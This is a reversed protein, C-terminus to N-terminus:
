RAPVRALLHQGGERRAAAACPCEWTCCCLGWAHADVAGPAAGGAAPWGLGWGCTCGARWWCSCRTFGWQQRCGPRAHGCGRQQRWGSVHRCGARHCSWSHHRPRLVHAAGQAQRGSGIGCGGSPAAPVCACPHRRLELAVWPHADPHPACHPPQLLRAWRRHAAALHDRCGRADWGACPGGLRPWHRAPEGRSHAVGRVCGRREARTSRRSFAVHSSCVVVSAAACGGHAGPRGARVRPPVSGVPARSVPAATGERCSAAHDVSRWARARQLHRGAGPPPCPPSTAMRHQQRQAHPRLAGPSTTLLCAGRTWHQAPGPPLSRGAPPLPATPPHTRPLLPWAGAAARRRRHAPAACLVPGAPARLRGPKCSSSVQARGSVTQLGKCVIRSCDVASDDGTGRGVVALGGGLGACADTRSMLHPRRRLCHLPAAGPAPLRRPGATAWAQASANRRVRQTRWAPPLRGVEDRWLQGPVM